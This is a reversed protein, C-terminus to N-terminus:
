LLQTRYKSRAYKLTRYTRMNKPVGVLIEKEYYAIGMTIRLWKVNTSSTTKLIFRTLTNREPTDTRGRHLINIVINGMRGGEEEPVEKPLVKIHVLM